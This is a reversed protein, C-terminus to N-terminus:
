YSLTVGLGHTNEKRFFRNARMHELARPAIFSLVMGAILGLFVIGSVMGPVLFTLFICIVFLISLLSTIRAAKKWGPEFADFRSQVEKKRHSLEELLAETPVHEWERKRGLDSTSM